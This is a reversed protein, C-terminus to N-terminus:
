VSREEPSRYELGLADFIERETACPVIRGTLLVGSRDRV